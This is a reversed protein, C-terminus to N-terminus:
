MRRQTRGAKGRDEKMGGLREKFRERGEENWIGRSTRKGRRGKRRIGEEVMGEKMSIILPHHDSEVNDGIEMNRVEKKDEERIVVYDIVSEGRGETYTYEGKEDGRVGGNM